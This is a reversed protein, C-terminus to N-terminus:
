VQDNQNSGNEVKTDHFGDERERIIKKCVYDRKPEIQIKLDSYLEQFLYEVPTSLAISLKLANELNPLTTSKEWKNVVSSSKGVIYSLYKQKFERKKRSLWINNRVTVQPSKDQRVSSPQTM